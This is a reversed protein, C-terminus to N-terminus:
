YFKFKLLTQSPFHHSPSFLFLVYFLHSPSHTLICPPSSVGLSSCPGQSLGPPQLASAEFAQHAGFSVEADDEMVSPVARGAEGCM